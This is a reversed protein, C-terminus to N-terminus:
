RDHQIKHEIYNRYVPNPHNKLRAHYLDIVIKAATGKFWWPFFAHVASAVGAWILRFSAAVAWGAHNFYDTDSDRLHKRGPFKEFINDYWRM